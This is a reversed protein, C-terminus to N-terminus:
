EAIIVAKRKSAEQICKVFEWYAEIQEKTATEPFIPEYTKPDIEIKGMAIVEKPACLLSM